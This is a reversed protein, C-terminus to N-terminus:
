APTYRGVARATKRVLVRYKQRVDLYSWFLYMNGAVSGTLLVWAALVLATNDRGKPAGTTPLPQNGAAAAQPDNAAIRNNPTTAQASGSVPWSAAQSQAGDGVATRSQSPQTSGAASTQPTAATGDLPQGAPTNLMGIRIAPAGDQPEAGAANGPWTNTQPGARSATPGLEPIPTGMGPWSAGAGGYAPEARDAINPYTKGAGAGGAGAGAQVRPDPAAAFPDKNNSTLPPPAV